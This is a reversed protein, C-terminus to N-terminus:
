RFYSGHFRFFHFIVLGFRSIGNRINSGILAQSSIEKVRTDLVTGINTVLTSAVKTIANVLKRTITKAHMILNGVDQPLGAAQVFRPLLLATQQNAHNVSKMARWRTTTNWRLVMLMQSSFRITGPSVCNQSCGTRNSSFKRFVCRELSM